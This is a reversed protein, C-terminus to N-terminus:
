MYDIPGTLDGILCAMVFYDVTPEWPQAPSWRINAQFGTQSPISLRYDAHPFRFYDNVSPMGPTVVGGSGDYIGGFGGLQEVHARFQEADGLIFSFLGTALRVMDVQAYVGDVPIVKVAFGSVAFNNGAPLTGAIAVNTDPYDRAVGAIAQHGQLFFNLENYPGGAATVIQRDYLHQWLGKDGAPISGGALNKKTPVQQIDPASVPINKRLVRRKKRRETVAEQAM